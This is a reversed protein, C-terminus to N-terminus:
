NIEKSGKGSATLSINDNEAYNTMNFSIFDTVYFINQQEGLSLFGFTINIAPYWEGIDKAYTYSIPSSVTYDKKHLEFNIGTHNEMANTIDSWKTINLSYGNQANDDQTIIVNLPGGSGSDSDSGGSINESIQNLGDTINDVKKDSGLKTIIKNIGELINM